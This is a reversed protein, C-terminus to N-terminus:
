IEVYLDDGRQEVQYSAVDEPAPLALVKGTRVNFRAGHCPCTVVDEELEGEGLSCQKHTCTDAIAFFQGDINALGIKKGGREFSKIENPPIDKATAIKILM